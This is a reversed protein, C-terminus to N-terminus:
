SSASGGCRGKRWDQRKPSCPRDSIMSGGKRRILGEDNLPKKNEKNNEKTRKSSSGETRLRSVRIMHPM